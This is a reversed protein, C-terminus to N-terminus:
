FCLGKDKTFPFWTSGESGKLFGFGEGHKRGFGPIGAFVKNNKENRKKKTKKIPFRQGREKRFEERGVFFFPLVRQSDSPGVDLFLIGM